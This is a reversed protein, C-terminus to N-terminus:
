AKAAGKFYVMNWLPIRLGRVDFPEFVVTRFTEEFIRRWEELPRPFDGRDAEALTRAICPTPQIVLDIVHVHGGDGLLRSVQRLIHYVGDNDLHHLLSNMLIFDFREDPSAEFKTVDAVEFRRGYRSRAVEIYRENIDVGLYDCDPPFQRSNTGPGCGVDLVRRIKTLNNHRAIPEFKSKVFPAQWARYVAPHEMVGSYKKLWAM